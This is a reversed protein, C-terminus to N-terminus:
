ESSRKTSVDGLLHVIQENRFHTEKLIEEIRTGLTQNFESDAGRIKGMASIHAEIQVQTTHLKDQSQIWSDSQVQAQDTFRELLRQTQRLYESMNQLSTNQSERMQNMQQANNKLNLTFEHNLFIQRDSLEKHRTDLDERWLVTQTSLMKEFSLTQQSLQEKQFEAHLQWLASQNELQQSNKSQSSELTSVFHQIEQTHRVDMKEQSQALLQQLEALKAHHSELRVLTDKLEESQGTQKQMQLLLTSTGHNHTDIRSTLNGLGSVLERVRRESQDLAIALGKLLPSHEALAGLAESLPDIETVLRSHHDTVEQMFSTDSQVYSVLDSAAGRVGVALVGMILSGLVGFLSASFAVGMAQMPSTLRAVLESIAAVPDVMGAGLNFSGILKGIEALAGLLGIFTGLLGMGVMLGGMFQALMLRRNQRAAFRELEAEIASYQITSVPIGELGHLLQILSTVDYRKGDENLSEVFEVTNAHSEVMRRYKRFVAGEQNIRWVHAFMQYCGVAILVFIIYNIQPHPNGHVTGMIADFFFFAGLAVCAVPIGIYWYYLQLRKM